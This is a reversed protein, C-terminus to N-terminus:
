AKIRDMFSDKSYVCSICFIPTIDREKTQHCPNTTQLSLDYNWKTMPSMLLFYIITLVMGHHTLSLIIPTSVPCSFLPSSIGDNSKIAHINQKPLHIMYTNKPCKDSPIPHGGTGFWSWTWSLTMPTFATFLSFQPQIWNNPKIAHIFPKLLYIM